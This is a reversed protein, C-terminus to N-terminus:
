EDPGGKLNALQQKFRAAVKIEDTSTEIKADQEKLQQMLRVKQTEAKEIDKKAAQEAKECLKLAKDLLATVSKVFLM